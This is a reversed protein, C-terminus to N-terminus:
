YKNKIFNVTERIHQTNPVSEGITKFEWSGSVSECMGLIMTKSDKFASDNAIEFKALVKSPDNVSGEYVRVGAYPIEDFTDGSFSNVYLFLREVNPPVKSFDITITENDSDNFSSDGVLDDGSHKIYDNSLKWFSVTELFGTNSFISVSADLDVDKQKSGFGLFGKTVIKGWNVGFNLKSLTEKSIEKSLNITENKSLNIM